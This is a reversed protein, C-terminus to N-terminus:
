ECAQVGVYHYNGLEDLWYEGQYPWYEFGNGIFYSRSEDDTIQKKLVGKGAIEKRISEKKGSVMEFKLFDSQEFFDRLETKIRRLHNRAQKGMVNNTSKMRKEIVRKAYKGIGSTQWEITLKNV